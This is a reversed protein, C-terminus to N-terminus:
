YIQLPLAEGPGAILAWIEGAALQVEDKSPASGPQTLTFPFKGPDLDIHVAQGMTAGEVDVPVKIEQGAITFTVEATNPNAFYIRAKGAPPLVGAAKAAPEDRIM